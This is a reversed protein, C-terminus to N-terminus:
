ERPQMEGVKMKTQRPLFEEPRIEALGEEVIQGVEVLAGAWPLGDKEGAIEDLLAFRIFEAFHLLFDEVPEPFFEAFESRAIGHEEGHGAIVVEVAGVRDVVIGGQICQQVFVAEAADGGLKPVIGGAGVAADDVIGEGGIGLPPLGRRVTWFIQGSADERAIEGARKMAAPPTDADHAQIGGIELELAAVVLALEDPINPLKVGDAAASDIVPQVLVVDAEQEGVLTGVPERGLSSFVALGFDRGRASESDMEEPVHV